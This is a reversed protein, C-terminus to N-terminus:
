WCSRAVTQRRCFTLLPLKSCHVAIM